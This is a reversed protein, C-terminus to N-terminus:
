KETLEYSSKYTKKYRNNDLIKYGSYIDPNYISMKLGVDYRKIFDYFLAGFAFKQANGTEERIYNFVDKWVERVNDIEEARGATQHPLIVFYDVIDSYKEYLFKLDALSQESGVIIHINLKINKLESLKEIAQLFVKKIHPHWSLAVGGCYKETAELVNETLHMGNTTYNPIINLSRVYRVFKSFDPHLTPEGAGGIAIQFPKENISMNAWIEEAKEVINEFNSGNKLANTYCYSCNALCKDNIAVDLLEPTLPPTNSFRITKFSNTFFAKYGGQQRIRM